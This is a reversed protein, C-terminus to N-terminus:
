YGIACGDLRPDTGATMVGSENDVWIGHGGGLAEVVQELKHGRSTLSNQVNAAIGREVQVIGKEYFIRPLDLAEQIDCGFDIINSLVHANGTPQYDGGMVGMPMVM